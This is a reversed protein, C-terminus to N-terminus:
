RFAELKELVADVSLPLPGMIQRKGDSVIWAPLDVDGSDVASSVLDWGAVFEAAELERAPEGSRLSDNSSMRYKANKELWDRLRDSTFINIQSQPLNGRLNENDVILVHLGEVQWTVQPSPPIPPDPPDPAEGTKITWEARKLKAADGDLYPAVVLIDYQGAPSPENACFCVLIQGRLDQLLRVEVDQGRPFVDVSGANLEAVTIGDIDLWVSRGVPVVGEPGSMTPGPDCLALLLILFRM